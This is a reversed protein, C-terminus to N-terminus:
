VLLGYQHIAYASLASVIFFVFIYTFWSSSSEVVDVKENGVGVNRDISQGDVIHDKLIKQQNEGDGQAKEDEVTDKEPIETFEPRTEGESEDYDDGSSSEEVQSMESEIIKKALRKAWSKRIAPTPIPGCKLGHERCKVRLENDDYNKMIEDQQLSVATEFEKQTRM